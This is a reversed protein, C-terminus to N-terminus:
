ALANEFWTVEVDADRPSGRVAVVDVRWAIQEDGTITQLYAEISALLHAKKTETLADEPMGYADNTRAKVEVFVLGEATRMVLDIEGYGTRVNRAVPELGHKELYAEAVTEGWRGIRQKHSPYVRKSM